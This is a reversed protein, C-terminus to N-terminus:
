KKLEESLETFRPFYKRVHFDASRFDLERKFDNMVGYDIIKDHKKIQLGFELIRLAHYINKKAFLINNDKHSLIANHWSASAISILKKAMEKKDLKKLPFSMKKQVVLDDPLFTCELAVIQYNNLADIFGARSYCTGQIMRDDSSIANDKFAGSPLLSSKYVIVYDEDSFENTSGYIRSGYPYINLVQSYDIKLAKCIEEAKNMNAYKKDLEKNVLDAFYNM